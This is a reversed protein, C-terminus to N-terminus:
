KVKIVSKWVTTSEQSVGETEDQNNYKIESSSKEMDAHMHTRTSRKSAIATRAATATRSTKKKKKKAQQTHSQQRKLVKGPIDKQQPRATRSTPSFM